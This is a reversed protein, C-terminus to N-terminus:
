RAAQEWVTARTLPTGGPALKLVRAITHTPLAGREFADVENSLVYLEYNVGTGFLPM